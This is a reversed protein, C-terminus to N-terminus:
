PDHVLPPSAGDVACAIRRAHAYVNFGRPRLFGVLTVGSAEALDVALSSPASIAAVVPISAALAKQVIEFSARGSVLLVRAHLPADGALFRSGIAKDVANHRGVDERAVILTGAADFIGAAHMGGTSDFGGQSARLRDPLSLLAAPTVVFGPPIPPSSRRVADITASGCVGCSSSAFVHRTLRAVDFVAHPALTVDALAGDDRECLRIHEIDGPARVIQEGLLFGAVLERDHGPTRMTVSISRGAIRVELPEEVALHDDAELPPIGAGVKWIRALATQPLM